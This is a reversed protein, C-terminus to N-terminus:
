VFQFGILSLYKHLSVLFRPRYWDIQTKKLSKEVLKTRVKTNRLVIKMRPKLYLISCYEQVRSFQANITILIAGVTDLLRSEFVFLELRNNSVTSLSFLSCSV